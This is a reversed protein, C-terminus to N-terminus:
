QEQNNELTRRVRDLEWGIDIYPCQYSPGPNEEAFRYFFGRARGHDQEPLILFAVDNEQFKLNGAIRWEREWEFRYTSRPYDGTSDIFPTLSWILHEQPNSTELALNILEKLAIERQSNHEVYWIPGGGKALIFQKSFGIGYRGRRESLRQLLHLPIESFCVTKQTEIEPADQRCIGFPNLAFITSKYLISMMNDYDTRNGSPKTFHVVYNSM